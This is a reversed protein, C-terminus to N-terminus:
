TRGVGRKRILPKETTSLKEFIFDIFNSVDACESKAEEYDKSKVAQILEQVEDDLRHLLFEFSFELYPERTRKKEIVGILCKNLKYMALTKM